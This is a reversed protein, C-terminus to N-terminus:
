KWKKILVKNINDYNEDSSCVISFVKKYDELLKTTDDSLFGISLRNQIDFNEFVLLDSLQDGFLIINEKGNINRYIDDSIFLNTKNTSSVLHTDLKIRNNEFKLMNSILNVNDYFCNHYILAEKVVNGLGASIVIIPINLKSLKQFFKDLGYRFTISDSERVLQKFMDDSSCYNSLLELQKYVWEEMYKNKLNSDINIDIEIQRYYNYLEISKIKYDESILSSHEFISWSTESDSKTITRDFDFVFVTKDLKIPLNVEKNIYIMYIM